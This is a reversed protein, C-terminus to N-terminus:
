RAHIRPSFAVIIWLDPSVSQHRYILRATSSTIPSRIKTLNRWSDQKGGSGTPEQVILSRSKPLAVDPAQEGWGTGRIWVRHLGSPLISATTIPVSSRKLPDRNRIELWSEITEPELGQATVIAIVIRYVPEASGNILDVGTRGLIAAKDSREEPGMVAAILRAQARHREEREQAEREHRRRREASIQWLAAGLAGVTGVSALWTPLDGLDVHGAALMVSAYAMPPGM